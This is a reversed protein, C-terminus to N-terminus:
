VGCMGACENAMTNWLQTQNEDPDSFDITELPARAPHLFPTEDLREIQDAQRQLEKEYKVAQAFAKPDDTKLRRWERDSHYPCYVCASRPATPFGNKEMWELCQHRRIEKELLPWRHTIYSIRSERMREIEDWSIGIWVTCPEGECLEKIKRNLPVIKHKDTCQRFWTGGGSTFAPVAHGLYKEGTKKSTRVKLSEKTLNGNQVRVVPFPLRTELWGLWDYVEKPEAGTDAFIAADPMPGIEGKAAMLALCSSQVGAGLSLFNLETKTKPEFMTDKEKKGTIGEAGNQVVSM